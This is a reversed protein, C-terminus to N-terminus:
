QATATKGKAQRPLSHVTTEKQPPMLKALGHQYAYVILELRDKLGLKAYISTLYHRVTKESIFLREGIQRNRRGEGILAIVERERGTLSGIKATQPDIKNTSRRHLESVVGALMMKSLWAEGACVKKIAKLLLEPTDTKLLVGRAGLRVASLHIEPDQSGTLVLIHCGQGAELLEPLLDLSSENGMDVDLLIIDPCPRAAALAQDRDSAHGVILLEPYPKLLARLGEVFLTHRGILVIKTPLM